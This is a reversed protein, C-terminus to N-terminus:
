AEGNDEPRNTGVFTEFLGPLQEVLFTAFGANRRRDITIKLERESQDLRALHEGSATVVSGVAPPEGRSRRVASLVSVFRLDTERDAFGPQSIATRARKAAGPNKIADALSQWRGRGVKPARGIAAIVDHPVSRAVAILKSAEARDISLAEQIITRDFGASELNAAYCAREVFSLDDRASNEVGQAVVLDEDGLSRLIAKVRIGLERAARVRRHGYASQYRGPAEPHERILIPVEQGRQRISAKLAEFRADDGKEFRDAIFSPDVLNPDVELVVAGTAIKERLEENEREVGSFTEKLSRVSGSSVRPLPPTNDASLMESRPEAFLTRITDTRKSM